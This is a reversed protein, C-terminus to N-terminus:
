EKKGAMAEAWPENKVAPAFGDSVDSIGAAREWEARTTDLPLLGGDVGDVDLFCSTCLM